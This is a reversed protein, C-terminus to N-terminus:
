TTMEQRTWRVMMEDIAVHVPTGREIARFAKRQLQERLFGGPARTDAETRTAQVRWARLTDYRLGFERAAPADGIEIARLVAARLTGTPLTSRTRFTGHGPIDINRYTHM